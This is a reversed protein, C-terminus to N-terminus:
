IFNRLDECEVLDVIVKGVLLIYELLDCVWDNFIYEFSVITGDKGITLGTCSLSVSDGTDGLIWDM